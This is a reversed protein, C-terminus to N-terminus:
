SPWLSRKQFKDDQSKKATHSFSSFYAKECNSHFDLLVFEEARQNGKQENMTLM